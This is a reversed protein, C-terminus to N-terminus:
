QAQETHRVRRLYFREYNSLERFAADFANRKGMEENFDERRAPTSSSLCTWGCFTEIHCVTTKAFTHYAITRIQASAQNFTLSSM